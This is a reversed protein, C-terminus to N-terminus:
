HFLTMLLPSVYPWRVKLTFALTVRISVPDRDCVSIFVHCYTVFWKNTQMAVSLVIALASSKTEIASWVVVFHSILRFKDKDPAKDFEDASLGNDVTVVVV